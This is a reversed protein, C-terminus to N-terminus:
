KGVVLADQRGKMFLPAIQAIFERADEVANLEALPDERGLQQEPLPVYISAMAWRHQINRFVSDFYSLLIHEYHDPCTTGDSGIYWYFNVARTRIRLGPQPEADRFIRMMMMTVERGDALRVPFPARDSVTWGQNPLCVEPRHLSRKMQGSLIVTAMMQRGASNAYVSRVLKVGEDLINKEQATMEFERGQYDGLSLPLELRVGPESVQFSTDTAATVGLTALMLVLAVGIQGLTRVPNPIVDFDGQGGSAGLRKLNSKM